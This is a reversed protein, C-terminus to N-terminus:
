APLRKLERTQKTLQATKDQEHRYHRTQERILEIIQEKEADTASYGVIRVHHRHHSARIEDNNHPSANDEVLSDLGYKTLAPYLADEYIELTKATDQMVTPPQLDPRQALVLRSAAHWARVEKYSSREWVNRPPDEDPYAFHDCYHVLRDNGGARTETIRWVVEENRDDDWDAFLTGRCLNKTHKFTVKLDAATWAM